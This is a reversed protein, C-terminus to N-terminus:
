VRPAASTSLPEPNLANKNTTQHRPKRPQSLFPPSPLPPFSLTCVSGLVAKCGDIGCVINAMEDQMSSLEDQRPTLLPRGPSVLVHRGPVEFQLLFLIAPTPLPSEANQLPECGGISTASPVARLRTRQATRYHALLASGVLSVM